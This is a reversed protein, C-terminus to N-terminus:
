DFWVLTHISHGLITVDVQGHKADEFRVRIDSEFRNLAILAVSNDKVIKFAVVEVPSDMESKTEIRISGPVLFRTFHALAYYMPQKYYEQAKENVIIPADVFNSVWNPGGEMDLALNWDVWGATFYQLDQFM